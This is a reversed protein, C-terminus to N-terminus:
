NNKLTNISKRRAERRWARRGLGHARSMVCDVYREWFLQALKMFADHHNPQLSTRLNTMFDWFAGVSEAVQLKKAEIVALSSADWCAADIEGLHALAGSSANMLVPASLACWSAAALLLMCVGMLGRWRVGLPRELRSDM